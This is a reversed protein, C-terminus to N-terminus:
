KTAPKDQWVRVYDILTQDPLDTAKKPDGSWGGMEDSLILYLPNACVGGANTRWTEQGDIYFIYGAPSWDVAFTHWGENLGPITTIRSASQHDLGYGDWHLANSAKDKDRWPCEVIDVETGDRGEEGVNGVKGGFLWVGPWHGVQEPLKMRAEVYGYTFAFKEASHIAGMTFGQPQKRFRLV